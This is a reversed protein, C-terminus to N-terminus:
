QFIKWLNLNCIYLVDVYKNIKCNYNLHINEKHTIILYIFMKHGYVSEWMSLLHWIGNNDIIFTFICYVIITKLSFM